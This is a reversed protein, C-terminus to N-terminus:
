GIEMERVCLEEGAALKAGFEGCRPCEFFAAQPSFKEQCGSCVAQPAIRNIILRSGEALTGKVAAEYCFELAEAAVGSLEGLDVTVSTVRAANKERAENEVIRAVNMAISM